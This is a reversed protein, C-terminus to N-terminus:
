TVVLELRCRCNPHRPPGFLNRWVRRYDKEDTTANHDFEASVGVMTGDLATCMGCPDSSTVVWRKALGPIGAENQFHAFVAQEVDSAAAQVAVSASAQARQATRAQSITVAQNIAVLRAPGPNDGQISDFAAAISNALDSQGHGFLTDVDQLLRDLNDGLEPMQEPAHEGLEAQLRALATAAAAQYGARVADAVQRRAQELNATLGHHMTALSLLGVGTIVTGPATAATTVAVAAIMRYADDIAQQVQQRTQSEIAILALGIAAAAVVNGGQGGAPAPAPQSM